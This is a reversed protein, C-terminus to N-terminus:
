AETGRTKGRSGPRIDLSQLHRSKEGDPRNGDEGQHQQRKLPQCHPHFPRHAPANWGKIMAENAPDEADTDCHHAPPDLFVGQQDNCVMRGPEVNGDDRRDRRHHKHGLALDSGPRDKPEQRPELAGYEYPLPPVEYAM